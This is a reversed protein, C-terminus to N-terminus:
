GGLLANTFPQADLGDAAGDTNMDAAAMHNPDTDTGILVATFIPIDNTDAIGDGNIDGPIVMSGGILAVAVGESIASIWLDGNSDFKVDGLQYHPIPSNEFTHITWNASNNIDGDILSVGNPFPTIPGFEMASVAMLGDSRFDISQIQDAPLPSNATNFVQWNVGDFAVLGGDTGIWITDDPGIEVANPGGLSFLFNNLADFSNWNTGDFMHLAVFTAVWLRGQSDTSLSEVENATWGAPAFAHNVWDAGDFWFVGSFDTGIWITGTGDQVIDQTTDIGLNSNTWDWVQLSVGDWRGIGNTGFWADGLNDVFVSDTGDALAPWPENPNHSGFNSWRQGDFSSIGGESGSLWIKGDAGVSFDNIWYDPIGTNYTNFAEIWVGTSDHHRVAGPSTIWLDGNPAPAMSFVQFPTTTVQSWSAGSSTSKIVQGAWNGVYVSAVDDVAITTISTNVFPTNASSFTAFSTGDFRYFFNGGGIGALMWINGEADQKLGRFRNVGAGHLTWRIGDYEAVGNLVENTVWVHGVNDVLVSSLVDWPPAWPLAGGVAFSTWNAGDYEFIASSPGGSNNIWVHGDADLDIDGINNHLLPSNASNFIVWNTGDFHVLGGSTAMWAGGASDFEIDNVFQSPLPSDWDAYTEWIQTQFDYITFGGAQFFPWRATVWLKGDPAFKAFGVSEGPIGTNTVKLVDWDTQAHLPQAILCLLWSIVLAGRLSRSMSLHPHIATNM